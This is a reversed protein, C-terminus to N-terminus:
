FLPECETGANGPEQCLQYMIQEDPMVDLSLFRATTTVKLTTNPHVVFRLQPFAIAAWFHSM